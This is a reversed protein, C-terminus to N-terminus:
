TTPGGIWGRRRFFYLLILVTLVELGLGFILFPTRGAVHGVLFSFNQGFFGTLYSLPLFITAIITLQKMVGNLRNSSVSSDKGDLFIVIKETATAPKGPILTSGSQIPKTEATASYASTTRLKILRVGDNTTQQLANLLTGCLFRNTALRNLAILKQKIEGIKKQDVVVETYKNTNSTMQGEVQSLEGRAIMSNVQLWSSWVLMLSVLLGALFTLRKVPDRRRLDEAAQAEALLNLCIPM